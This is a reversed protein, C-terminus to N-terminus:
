KAKAAKVATTAASATAKVGADTFEAVQKAAKTVGDIAAATAAVSSKIAAVAVDAGAPASKVAKDIAAVVSKNLEGFREEVLASFQSQAQTALEYLSRSYSVVRDVGTEALKGRLSILEQPDKVDGVTKWNKTLDAFTEKGATLNLNVLREATDFSIHAAQVVTDLAAKNIETFQEPANFM